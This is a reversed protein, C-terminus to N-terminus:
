NVEPVMPQTNKPATNPKNLQPTDLNSDKSNNNSKKLEQEKIVQELESSIAISKKKSLSALVLCNLMFVAILFMTIKNLISMSARGSIASNLGASSSSLGSLSDGDSKQALVLIIMLVAVIIQIILLYFQIGEM